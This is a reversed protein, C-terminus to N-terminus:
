GNVRMRKIAHGKLAAARREAPLPQDIPVVLGAAIERRLQAERSAIMARDSAVRQKAMVSAASSLTQAQIEELLKHLSREHLRNILARIM